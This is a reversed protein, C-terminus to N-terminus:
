RSAVGPRASMVQVWFLLFSGVRAGRLLSVCVQCDTMTPYYYPACCGGHEQALVEEEEEEEEEEEVGSEAAAAGTADSSVPAVQNVAM